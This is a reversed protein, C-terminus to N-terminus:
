DVELIAADIDGVCELAGRAAADLAASIEAELEGRAPRRGEVRHFCVPCGFSARLGVHEQKCYICIATM